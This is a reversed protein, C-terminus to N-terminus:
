TKWLFLCPMDWIYNGTVNPPPITIVFPKITPDFNPKMPDNHPKFYGKSECEQYLRDETSKFDYTKPLRYDPM